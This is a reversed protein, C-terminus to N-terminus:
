TAKPPRVQSLGHQQEDVVKMTKEKQQQMSELTAEKQTL